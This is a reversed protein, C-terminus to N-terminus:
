SRVATNADLWARLDRIRYAIRRESLRVVAPGTGKAVARRLTAVSIGCAQAAQKETVVREDAPFISAVASTQM